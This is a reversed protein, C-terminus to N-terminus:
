NRYKISVRIHGGRGGGAVGVACRTVLLQLAVDFSKEKEKDAVEACLSRTGGAAAVAGRVKLGDGLGEIHQLYNM